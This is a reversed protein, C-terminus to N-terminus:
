NTQNNIFLAEMEEESLLEWNTEEMEKEPLTAPDIDWIAISAIDKTVEGHKYPSAKGDTTLAVNPHKMIDYKFDMIPREGRIFLIAYQNDLMRVEDPTLLERGSIQYNTSYNGSRGTSKGFTNTDITEKGLLESVYKHTSQENGGLYLFEDCNGVISEWQKEFLAKLQALNQLIISVSVGRSRMVSLIKDFDDPLSVNAFEDMMFHVPMPLCGGHIHDAAYFLQQFLQTYLISVLFNFSSDNDPILAFLAVKKEGLSQLDLEDVSTLAALSELNFKELRAALTIQISKLTKSSGSHYSHYYKLAIHDPNDIMLDSFLNDLPSPSPDDEDEIAGARLMEMVMAFNQEEPPAEYHLYFVLALLLMSAATDWFPDNSQSGKPTTSKFLNTVLKQVDNDNQLYVFPNYCHSKEMSILDLVRVEYGKKELLHGTDRLIEGKPDLIVYSNRAANMINPKGNENVSIIEILGDAPIVTGSASVIDEAAYLGFSINKIEGNDGIGFTKDKEIAKALSVQVKQRENYFSTSTETVSINQGAYTLEVTHTEGSIVMGYPATIEKVEYKGLYLEESKVFGDSSTTITDVVEGKSYRLTGDPTSIDEAARVEYVAGELGAVEYVPQYIVDSDESGSVNVGSFVEGTKEVTITGKQAMNPKNVKVVTVGGEETSNEETIDFYVPTDDLVYGYPAQVEVISYGKGYDLKEPTVLSGNADTYFVDITTPTPYTFTMKVQNGQPDYIKFGAGAYPISKGSEADVKVVNVFSEFNRNNILYRYTQANQSIFVDFDDMMERGEWGSTQHVTYIGYPMDKTQGFGNEDCVITDREDKNAADYSGASKLYIEFSAGKEPTEIKTEGDDTHKIIAVNGKIVQETVDNSTLNHEVEYLKPDAGVEHITKDLLYGESPTIERITWDTDCVYEKTTFQGNEDTVYKDVLTEGKYIGYVAGSLKANGQAEGKEADSKTVTVTFKKLINNFNRTTVEKWKVPATQNKPVVYRIATDVEELTYPESGSILVDKFTAVGNKDTVAYQDVAAGSLSTGFLHFKMGEVLNDESSKVVQLDGRKLKNNFNVKAVQGAVVTVRHTEQPEYKDYAQETVTYIGPMLNDIQFKGGNATTVTQNIGNGTITFNIGDVKGDESTKVIQCSGYSVKMKVYGNISDSVEQAYSVVDQVSSNQGHKGESWVVVGRRVANKKTATITFEKSPATDMSVTLKNGNVSFSVGSISAKFNYKSLVNNSDTLTTTYKSGNWELEITKASGSSKNCFSPITAHNQVSQVMSNYYSFIKNRLPHKANIVDKVNSCGSAAVHNFNVDREGIVTEWILLQTAYAQAISNAAAENQSRWSTSITGRYGYQLIRGVFLRIEDGSIVGNSALNNFYNEDYKNMTQGVKLSIGPEICYAVNGSYSGIAKLNTFNSRGTHWGNKLTLNSHGWVGDYNADGDRPFDVMYVDAKEGSAAYATTSGIGAFTTVCMLTALFLSTVRKFKSKIM